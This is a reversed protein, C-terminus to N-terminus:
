ELEQAQKELQKEKELDLQRKLAIMDKKIQDYKSRYEDRQETAAKVRSEMEVIELQKQGLENRLVSLPSEEVDRKLNYFKESATALKSQTEAVERQLRKKENELGVREEKFKVKINMIEEEKSTLQRSVEM